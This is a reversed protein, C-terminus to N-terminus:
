TGPATKPTLIARYAKRYAWALYVELALVALAIPLGSPELFTHFAVSNVVFPALLILALPVFRNALLLAGVTFQTGFILPMMYGTTMLAGGFAAAAEPLPTSPQPTMNLLGALGSAFFLIGLLVRAATPIHRAFSKERGTEVNDGM